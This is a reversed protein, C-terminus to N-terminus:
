IINWDIPSQGSAVLVENCRSFCRSGLFPSDTKSAGLPSPHSTTIVTHRSLDIARGKKAAPSGWLLFVIGERRDNLVRVVEDSFDEWGMKSHSNAEGRRVTFVTNLLLVGQRAWNELNGHPPSRIGEDAQLEKFINRLSPPPDIGRQVSFALGHGQGPGHYPDQGIIVVKVNDLPCKNLASFVDQSLPYVTHLKRESEVFRSLRDFTESNLFTALADRWSEDTLAETLTLDLDEKSQNLNVDDAHTAMDGLRRSNSSLLQDKVYWIARGHPGDTERIIQNGKPCYDRGYCQLEFSYKGKNGDLDSYSGGDKITMGQSNYSARATDIIEAYLKRAQDDTIEGLSSFPDLKARYLAESLLYNGVGSIKSQDMLFKCINLEQRQKRVIDLFVEEEFTNTLIDPGLSDLKEELERKSLSFRLTGFNRTDYYYIKKTTPREDKQSMTEDEDLFELYWRPQKSDRNSSSSSTVENGNNPIKDRVKEERFFRGTMGLTIWISRYYDEEDVDIGVGGEAGGGGGGIWRGQDLTLWIFKGKCNWSTVVDVQGHDDDKLYNTMTKRFEDFGRPKGHTTYRGSLFQLNVLRKGVAPQLQDVLTRVEPGEPMM